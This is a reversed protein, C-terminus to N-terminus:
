LYTGLINKVSVCGFRVAFVFLLLIIAYMEFYVGQASERDYKVDSNRALLGSIFSSLNM